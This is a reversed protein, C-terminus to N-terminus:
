MELCEGSKRKQSYINGCECLSGDDTLSHFQQSHDIRGDTSGCDTFSHETYSAVAAVIADSSLLFGYILLCILRYM